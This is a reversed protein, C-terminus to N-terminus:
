AGKYPTSAIYSGDDLQEIIYDGFLIPDVKQLCLLCKIMVERIEPEVHSKKKQNILYGPTRQDIIHRWTRANGTWYGSTETCGLLFGRAAQSVNKKSETKSEGLLGGEEQITRIEESINDYESYIIDILRLFRGHLNGHKQFEPREVFRLLDKSVYRQSLQSISLGRHRNLEMSMTRSGAIFITFTAHELVSWHEDRRIKILYKDTQANRTRKLGWSGYCGQAADKIIMSSYPIISGDQLLWPDSLYKGFGLRPDFGDFYDQLGDPNFFTKGTIAVYPKTIYPVGKSTQYVETKIHPMGRQFIGGLQFFLDDMGYVGNEM